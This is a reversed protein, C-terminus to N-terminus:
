TRALVGEARRGRGAPAIAPHRKMRPSSRRPASSSPAGAQAAEARRRRRGHRPQHLHVRRREGGGTGGIIEIDVGDRGRVGFREDIVEKPLALTEKVGLTYHKADAHEYLGAEKALFSNVGDCAIVVRARLDGDPRDTRVGVVAGDADRLLGTVTTSTLCSRAPPRPTAPSGTTSTPGTRPPATTRRRAGRRPASTSPAAGADDTLLM